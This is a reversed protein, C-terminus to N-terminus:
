SRLARVGHQLGILPTDANDARIGQPQEAEFLDKRRMAEFFNNREGAVACQFRMLEWQDDNIGGAGFVQKIQQRGKARSSRLQLQDDDPKRFIEPIHLAHDAGSRLAIQRVGSTLGLNM